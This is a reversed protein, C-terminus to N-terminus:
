TLATIDFDARWRYQEGDGSVELAGLTVLEGLMGHLMRGAPNNTWFVWKMGNFTNATEPYLGLTIGLACMTIDIDTWERLREQLTPVTGGPEM